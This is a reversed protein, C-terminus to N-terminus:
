KPHSKQHDKSFIILINLFIILIIVFIILLNFFIILSIILIIVFICSKKPYCRQLIILIIVFIILIIVFIILFIDVQKQVIRSQQPNIAEECSIGKFRTEVFHRFNKDSNFDRADYM